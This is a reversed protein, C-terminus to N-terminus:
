LSGANLGEGISEAERGRGHANGNGSEHVRPQEIAPGIGMVVAGDLDVEGLAAM